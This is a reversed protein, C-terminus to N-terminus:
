HKPKKAELAHPIKGGRGPILGVHGANFLATMVVPGSPFDRWKQSSPVLCSAAVQEPWPSDSTSFPGLCFLVFVFGM